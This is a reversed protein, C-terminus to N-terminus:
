WREGAPAARGQIGAFMAEWNARMQARGRFARDPHAPQESRYDQHFLNAAVDLDHRNMAALLREIVDSM